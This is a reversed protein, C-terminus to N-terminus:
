WGCLLSEGMNKAVVDQFQHFRYGVVTILYTLFVYGMKYDEDFLKLLSEKSIRLIKTRDAACYASLRMKYPPVFCSWGFTQAVAEKRDINVSSVTHEKSTPRGAPLEFRLDVRGDMVIWLHEASDGETFLKDGQNFGFEQCNPQLKSLQGRDMGKFAEITGLLEVSVM